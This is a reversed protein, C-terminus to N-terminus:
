TGGAQLDAPLLVSVVHQRTDKRVDGGHLRVIRRALMWEVEATPEHTTSPRVADGFTLDIKVGEGATDVKVFLARGVAQLGLRRLIGPWARPLHVPDAAVTGRVDGSVTVSAARLDVRAHQVLSAILDGIPTPTPALEIPQLCDLLLTVFQHLDDTALELMHTAVGDSPAGHEERARKAWQYMRDLLLELGRVLTSFEAPNM